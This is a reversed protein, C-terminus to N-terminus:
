IVSDILRMHGLPVTHLQKKQKMSYQDESEEKRQNRCHSYDVIVAIMFDNRDTQYFVRAICVFWKPMTKLQICCKVKRPAIIIERSKYQKLNTSAAINWSTYIYRM